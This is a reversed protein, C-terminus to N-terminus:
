LVNALWDDLIAEIDRLPIQCGGENKPDVEIGIVLLQEPLVALAEALSLADRVGFGHSSLLGQAQGINIESWTKIIGAKGGSCMADILVTPLKSELYSVLGAGPRDLKDFSLQPLHPKLRDSGQLLEIVRWGLTDDGFPSGIGAVQVVAPM